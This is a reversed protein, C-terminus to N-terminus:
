PHSGSGNKGALTLAIREISRFTELDTDGLSIRVGFTKELEFLLEVLQLSDLIGAEFLDTDYSPVDIQLKQSFIDAVEAAISDARSSETFSSSLLATAMKGGIRSNLDM